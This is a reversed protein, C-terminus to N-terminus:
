YWYVVLTEKLMKMNKLCAFHYTQYGPILPRFIDRKMTEVFGLIDHSKIIHLDSLGLKDGMVNINWSLVSLYIENEYICM